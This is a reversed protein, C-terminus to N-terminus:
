GRSVMEEVSGLPEAGALLEDLGHPRHLEDPGLPDRDEPLAADSTPAETM